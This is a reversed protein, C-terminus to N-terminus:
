CIQVDRGHRPCATFNLAYDVNSRDVDTGERPPSPPFSLTGTLTRRISFSHGFNARSALKFALRRARDKPDLRSTQGGGFYISGCDLGGDPRSDVFAQGVCNDVTQLYNGTHPFPTVLFALQNRQGYQRIFGILGVPTFLLKGTLTTTCTENPVASM